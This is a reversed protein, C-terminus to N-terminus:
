HEINLPEFLLFDVINKIATKSVKREQGSSTTYKLNNLCESNDELAKILNKITKYQDCIINAIKMSVSPIQTLMIVHINERTIKSKKSINVTESYNKKVSTMDVKECMKILLQATEDINKSTLLTFGKNIALSIMCGNVTNKNELMPIGELLYCIRKNDLECENLRFSQENYRGDRLSSLLDKITKREIISVLENQDNLIHVDGITLNESTLEINMSSNKKSREELITKLARELRQERCDLIIKM